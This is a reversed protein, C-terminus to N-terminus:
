ETTHKSVSLSYFINNHFDFGIRTLIIHNIMGFVGMKFGSNQIIFIEEGDGMLITAWLQGIKHNHNHYKLAYKWPPSWRGNIFTNLLKM